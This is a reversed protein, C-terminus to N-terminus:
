KSIYLTQRLAWLSYRTTSLRARMDTTSPSSSSSTAISSVAMAIGSVCDTRAAMHPTDRLTKLEDREAQTLGDADPKREGEGEKKMRAVRGAVIADVEAQTFKKEDGGGGGGEGEPARFVRFMDTVYRKFM